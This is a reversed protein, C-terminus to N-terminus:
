EWEHRYRETRIYEQEKWSVNLRPAANAEDVIYEDCLSYCMSLTIKQCDRSNLSLSPARERIEVHENMSNNNM